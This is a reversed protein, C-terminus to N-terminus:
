QQHKVVVVFLLLLLLLIVELLVCAVDVRVAGRVGNALMGTQLNFLVVVLYLM